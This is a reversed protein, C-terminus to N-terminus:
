LLMGGFPHRKHCSNKIRFRKRISGVYIGKSAKETLSLWCQIRKTQCIAGSISSPMHELHWCRTENTWTKSFVSQVKFVRKVSVNQMCFARRGQSVFAGRILEHRTKQSSSYVTRCMNLIMKLAESKKVQSQSYIRVRCFWELICGWGPSISGIKSWRKPGMISLNGFSNKQAIKWPWHSYFM